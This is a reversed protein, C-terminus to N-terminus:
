NINKIKIFISKLNTTLIHNHFFVPVSDNIPILTSDIVDSQKNCHLDCEEVTKFKTCEFNKVHKDKNLCLYYSKAYITAKIIDM